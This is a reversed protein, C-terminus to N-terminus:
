RRLAQAVSFLVGVVVSIVAIAIVITADAFTQIHALM